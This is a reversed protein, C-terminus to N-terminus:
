KWCTATSDAGGNDLSSQAGTQLVTFSQCSTDGVQAGIATAVITYGAQTPPAAAPNAATVNVTVNYYGSGVQMSFAGAAAGYGLDLPSTTYSNSTSFFREERAALDLLASRAETRHSKRVQAQYSPVAISLLLAAIAVVVMLEALTFGAAARWGTRTAMSHMHTM